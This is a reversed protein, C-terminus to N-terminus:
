PQGVRASWLGRRHADVSGSGATTQITSNGAAVAITGLTETSAIGAAGLYNFTGGSLTLTDADNIRNLNNTGTNDLTLTAGTNVVISSSGATTTVIAATTGGPIVSAGLGNFFTVVPNAANSVSINEIGNVLGVNPLAELAAQINGPTLNM